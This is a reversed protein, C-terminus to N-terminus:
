QWAGPESQRDDHWDTFDADTRDVIRDDDHAPATAAPKLLAAVAPKRAIGVCSLTEAKTADQAAIPSQRVAFGIPSEPKNSGKCKGTFVQAMTRLKLPNPM